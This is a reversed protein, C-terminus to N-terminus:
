KSIPTAGLLKMGNGLVQRVNKYLVARATYKSATASGVGDSEDENAKDLCLTLEEAIRFLYLLITGPELKEFAIQYHRSVQSDASTARVM